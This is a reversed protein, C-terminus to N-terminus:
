DKQEGKELSHSASVEYKFIHFPKIKVSENVSNNQVQLFLIYQCKINKFFLGEHLECYLLFASTIM